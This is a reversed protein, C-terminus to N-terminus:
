CWTLNNKVSYAISTAVFNNHFFCTAAAGARTIKNM